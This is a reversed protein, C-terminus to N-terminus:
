PAGIRPGYDLSSGPSVALVKRPARPAEPGRHVGRHKIRGQAGVLVRLLIQWLKAVREVREQRDSTAEM